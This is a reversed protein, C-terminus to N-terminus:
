AVEVDHEPAWEPTIGHRAVLYQLKEKDTPDQRVAYVHCPHTQKHKAAIAIGLPIVTGAPVTSIATTMATAKSSAASAAAQAKAEVAPLKDLIQKVVYESAPTPSGGDSGAPHVHATAYARALVDGASAIAWGLIGAGVLGLMAIKINESVNLADLKDLIPLLGGVIATVAAAFGATTTFRLSDAGIVDTSKTSGSLLTDFPNRDSMKGEKNVVSFM